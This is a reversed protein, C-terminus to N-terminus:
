FFSACFLGYSSVVRVPKEYLLFMRESQLLLLHAVGELLPVYAFLIFGYFRCHM